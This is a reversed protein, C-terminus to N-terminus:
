WWDLQTMIDNLNISGDQNTDTTTIYVVEGNILIEIKDHNGDNDSDWQRVRFEEINPYDQHLKSTTPIGFNADIAKAMNNNWRSADSPGVASDRADIDGDGDTDYSPLYMGDEDDHGYPGVFQLGDPTTYIQTEPEAKVVPVDEATNSSSTSICGSNLVAAILILACLPKVYQKITVKFM